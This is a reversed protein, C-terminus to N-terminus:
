FSKLLTVKHMHRYSVTKQYFVQYNYRILATRFVYQTRSATCVLSELWNFIVAPEATRIRVPRDILPVRSEVSVRTHTWSTWKEHELRSLSLLHNGDRSIFTQLSDCVILQLWCIAAPNGPSSAALFGNTARRLSNQKRPSYLLFAIELFSASFPLKKCLSLSLHTLHTM